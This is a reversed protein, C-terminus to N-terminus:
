GTVKRPRGVRREALAQQYAASGVPSQRARPANVGHKRLMHLFNTRGLGLARAAQARCGGTQQLALELIQRKAIAVQEHYTM